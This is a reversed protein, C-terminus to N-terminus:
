RDQVVCGSSSFIVDFGSNSLQSISILNLSLHSIYFVRTLSLPSSTNSCISGISHVHMSSGNTTAVTIPSFPPVYHSLCTIDSTMHHSCSSFFIWTTPSVGQGFYNLFGSQTITMTFAQSSSKQFSATFSQLQEFLSQM